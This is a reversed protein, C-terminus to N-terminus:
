RESPAARLSLANKAEGPWSITGSATCRAIPGSWRASTDTVAGVPPARLAKQAPTVAKVRAAQACSLARAKAARLVPKQVARQPQEARLPGAEAPDAVENLRGALRGVTRAAAASEAAAAATRPSEGGVACLAADDGNHLRSAVPLPNLYAGSQGTATGGCACARARECHRKRGARVIPCSLRRATTHRTARMQVYRSRVAACEHGAGATCVRHRWAAAWTCLPGPGRRRQRCAATRQAARRRKLAPGSAVRRRNRRQALGLLLKKEPHAVQRGAAAVRGRPAACPM